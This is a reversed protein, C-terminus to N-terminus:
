TGSVYEALELWKDIEDSGYFEEGNSLTPDVGDWDEEVQQLLATITPDLAATSEFPARLYIASAVIFSAAIVPAIISLPIRFRLHSDSLAAQPSVTELNEIKALLRSREQSHIAPIRPSHKRLLTGLKDNSDHNM